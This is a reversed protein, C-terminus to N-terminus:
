PRGTLIRNKQGGGVGQGSIDPNWRGGGEGPRGTQLINKLHTYKSLFVTKKKLVVLIEETCTINKLPYGVNRVVEKRVESM